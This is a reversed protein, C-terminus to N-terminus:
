IQGHKNQPRADEVCLLYYAIIASIFPLTKIFKANNISHHIEKSNFVGAMMGDQGQMIPDNRITYKINLHRVQIKIIARHGLDRSSFIWTDM